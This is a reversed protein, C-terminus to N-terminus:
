IWRTWWHQCSVPSLPQTLTCTWIYISFWKSSGIYQNPRKSMDNFVINIPGFCRLNLEIQCCIVIHRSHSRWVQVKSHPRCFYLKLYIRPKNSLVDVTSTAQLARSAFSRRVARLQLRRAFVDDTGSGEAWNRVSADYDERHTWWKQHHMYMTKEPVTGACSSSKFPQIYIYVISIHIYIYM